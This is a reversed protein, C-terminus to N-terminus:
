SVYSVGSVLLMGALVTVNIALRVIRSLGHRQSNQSASNARKEDPDATFVINYRASINLKDIDQGHCENTKTDTPKLERVTENRLICVANTNPQLPFPQEHWVGKHMVFGASGDFLMCVVKHLEPEDSGDTKPAFFGLLPKGELPIFTQTHKYHRELFRCEIPRPEYSLVLLCTDEDSSFNPSPNSM